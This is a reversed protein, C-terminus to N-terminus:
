RCSVVPGRQGEAGAMRFRRRLVHTIGVIRSGPAAAASEEPAASSILCAVTLPGDAQM